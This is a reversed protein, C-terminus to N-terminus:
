VQLVCKSSTGRNILRLKNAEAELREKLTPTLLRKASEPEINNNECVKIIAGMVDKSADRSRGLIDEVENSFEKKTIM